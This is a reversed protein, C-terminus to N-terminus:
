RWSATSIPITTSSAPATSRGRGHIEGGVGLLERQDHHRYLQAHRGQRQRPSLGPFDGAAGVPLIDEATRRTRLPMTAPSNAGHEVNHEHVWEGPAIGSKAFGIIQGFKRIPEGQAIPQTAMKHGRPVRARAVAGSASAGKEVNDVAVVVNDAANLRITRPEKRQRSSKM